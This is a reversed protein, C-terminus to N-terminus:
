PIGDAWTTGDESQRWLYGGGGDSAIYALTAVTPPVPVIPDPFPIPFLALIPGQMPDPNLPQMGPRLCLGKQENIPNWQANQAVRLQNTAVHVVSDVVNVGAEGFAYLDFKGPM